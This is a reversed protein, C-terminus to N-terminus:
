GDEDDGQTAVKLYHITLRQVDPFQRMGLSAPAADPMGSSKLAKEVRNQIAVSVAAIMLVQDELSLAELIEAIASGADRLAKQRDKSAFLLAAQEDESRNRTDILM